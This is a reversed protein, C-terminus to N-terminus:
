GRLQTQKVFAAVQYRDPTFPDDCFTLGPVRKKLSDHIEPSVPMGDVGLGLNTLHAFAEHNAHVFDACADIETEDHNMMRLVKLRALLGSEAIAQLIESPMHANAITLEELVLLADDRVTDIIAQDATSRREYSLGLILRRLAPAPSKFLNEASWSPEYPDAILTLEELRSHEIPELLVSAGVIYAGELNPCAALVDSVDAVRVQTSRTLPQWYTDVVLTKLAKPQLAILAGLWEGVHDGMILLKTADDHAALIAEVHDQDIGPGLLAQLYDSGGRSPTKSTDIALHTGNRFVVSKEVSRRHAEAREREERAAAEQAGAAAEQAQARAGILASELADLTNARLDSWEARLRELDTPIEADYTEALALI